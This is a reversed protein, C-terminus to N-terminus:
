VQSIFGGHILHNLYIVSPYTAVFSFFFGNLGMFVATSAHFLVGLALLVPLTEKGVFLTMVFGCEFMMVSWCAAVSLPRHKIFLPGLAGHGYIKTNMISAMAEGNRWAPGLLKAVGSIAYALVAQAGIFIVCSKAAWSGAPAIFFLMSAIFVVTNMHHAGDLGLVTRCNFLLLSLLIATTLIAPVVSADPHVLLVVLLGAAAALRLWLIKTFTSPKCSYDLAGWLPRLINPRSRVSLVRWSLIGGDSFVDLRYLDEVTSLAVGSTSVLLIATVVSDVSAFADM